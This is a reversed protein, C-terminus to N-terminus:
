FLRPNAPKLLLPVGTDSWDLFQSDFFNVGFISEEESLAQEFATSDADEHLLERAVWQLQSVYQREVCFPLNTVECLLRSFAWCWEEEWVETEGVASSPIGGERLLGHGAEHFFLTFFDSDHAYFAMHVIADDCAWGDNRIATTIIKQLTAVPDIKKKLHAEACLMEMRQIAENNLGAVAGLMEERLVNEGRGRSIIVKEAVALLDEKSVGLPLRNEMGTHMRIKGESRHFYVLVFLSIADTNSM